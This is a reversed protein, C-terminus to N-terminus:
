FYVRFSAARHRLSARAFFLVKENTEDARAHNQAREVAKGGTNVVEEFVPQEAPDEGSVTFPRAKGEAGRDSVRLGGPEEPLQAVADAAADFGADDQVAYPPEHAIQESATELDPAHEEGREARIGDDRSADRRDEIGGARDPDIEAGHDRGAGGNEGGKRQDQRFARQGFADRAGHRAPQNQLKGSEGRLVDLIGDPIAPM